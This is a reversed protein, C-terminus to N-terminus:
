IFPNYKCSLSIILLKKNLPTGSLATYPFKIISAIGATIHVTKITSGNIIAQRMILLNKYYPPKQSIIDLTYM